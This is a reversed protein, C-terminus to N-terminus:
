NELPSGEDDLLFIRKRSRPHSHDGTKDGGGGEDERGRKRNFKRKLADVESLWLQKSGVAFKPLDNNAKYWFYDTKGNCNRLVLCQRDRTAENMINRFHPFSMHGFYDEHIKKMEKESSSAFFFVFDAQTRLVSPCDRLYQFCFCCFFGAHRGNACIEKLIKSKWIEKDYGCDDMILAMCPKRATTDSDAEEIFQNCLKYLDEILEEPFNKFVCSNPMLERFKKWTPITPAVSIIMDIRERVHYLIDMELVSKGVGRKGVVMITADPQIMSMQFHPISGVYNCM